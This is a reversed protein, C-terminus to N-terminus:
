GIKLRFAKTNNYLGSISCLKFYFIGAFKESSIFLRFISSLLLAIICFITDSNSHIIASFSLIITSCPNTIFLWPASINSSWLCSFISLELLLKGGDKTYLQQGIGAKAESKAEVVSQSVEKKEM